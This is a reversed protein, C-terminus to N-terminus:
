PCGAVHVDEAVANSNAISAPASSIGTFIPPGALAVILVIGSLMLLGFLKSRRGTYSSCNENLPELNSDETWDVVKISGYGPKVDESTIQSTM